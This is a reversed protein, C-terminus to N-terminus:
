QFQQKSNQKAAIEEFVKTVREGENGKRDQM